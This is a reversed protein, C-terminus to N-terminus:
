ISEISGTDSAEAGDGTIPYTKNLTIAVFDPVAAALATLGGRVEATAIARVQAESLGANDEAAELAEIRTKHGAVDGKVADVQSQLGTQVTQVSTIKGENATAKDLAAQATQTASEIDDILGALSDIVNDGDADVNDLFAEIKALSVAVGDSDLLNIQTQLAALEADTYSVIEQGMSAQMNRLEVFKGMLLQFAAQDETSTYETAM